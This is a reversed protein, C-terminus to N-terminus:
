ESINLLVACVVMSISININIDLLKNEWQNLATESRLGLRSKVLESNIERMKIKIDKSVCIESRLSNHLM